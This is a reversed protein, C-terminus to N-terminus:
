REARLTVIGWPPLTVAGTVAEGRVESTNSLFTRAPAPASWTLSVAQPTDSVNYLRVIWGQGDDAPKFAVTVVKDNSVTFRSRGTPLTAGAPVVLFPQALGTAFRTAEAANFPAHPRVSFRFTTPGEQYARYNTGWHNNMLWPYLRQTPPVSAQWVKPDTQSNLLNATLGGLQVLPTDLTVWTVGRGSASVDAWNGVTFWNRCSGDIQDVDPQIVGGLPLELRVRGDPVLFPFALNVSEKSSPLYFDGKPGAPARSKDIVTRLDVRDLRAAVSVERTLAAAGPASSEAVITAVLPGRERVHVRAPGSTTAKAADNGVMFLYQNMAQGTSTDVVSGAATTVDVVNGTSPDLRVAIRGNEILTDTARVGGTAPPAPAGAVVRYRRSALPPLADILVALEGTTLRQSPAAVGDADLVRDGGTSLAAPVRVVDTRTWSLTNVIDFTSAAAPATPMAATLLARSLRDAEEAYGRKITWQDRVFAEEPQSISNWAGWTHETYLLVKKWAADADGAPWRDPARLAWLTEAQTMRDSSARNMATERASSGAGDEWYPTWDGRKVPLTNGYRQELAAFPAHQDSIIFRPWRYRTNWEKVFEAITPEPEANDGPGSWRIYTIDYPYKIEALHDVYSAVHEPTMRANWTHSLAYGMWSNWTLVRERGSPGVWWFPQDASAVQTTGIRDFFNPSTSFYRIGAQALAPVLGWTHGPIDSIMATDITVGLRSAMRTAMRTAQVLEEPRSLGTLVNLYLGNLGVQGTKVAKEFATRKTEDMRPLFLDAAWLVEVNWVFRAGEPYSKTKEALAMGKVLNNVQRDEVEPQLHTYGIDTHSHPVVYITLKPVPRLLLTFTDGGVDFRMGRQTDAAPIIVEVDQRGTALEPRAVETGDATIAVAQAAATHLIDLVVPRWTRGDREILGPIPRADAIFTAGPTPALSAGPVRIAVHEYLFWCGKVIAIAVMNRGPKLSAAPLRYEVRHRKAQDLRGDISGDGGGLPLTEHGVRTGNLVVDLEPALVSHTDLLDLTLTGDTGAPVSALDFAIRFTHVRRGGWSDGPGPHVYPWDTETRSRGAIFLADKGFAKWGAPSLAFGANGGGPRGIEVLPADQARAPAAFVLLGLLVIIATPRISLHRM